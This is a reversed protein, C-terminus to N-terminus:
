KMCLICSDEFIHSDLGKFIYRTRSCHLSAPGFTRLSSFPKAFVTYVALFLKQFLFINKPQTTSVHLTPHCQLTPPHDLHAAGPGSRGSNPEGHHVPTHSYHPPISYLHTTHYLNGAVGGWVQQPGASTCHTFARHTLSHRVLGPWHSRRQGPAM